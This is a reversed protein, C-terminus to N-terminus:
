EREAALASQYIRSVLAFFFGASLGGMLSGALGEVPGLMRWPKELVLDGYGITTFTVGSFYFASEANAALKRAKPNTRYLGDLAVRSKQDIKRADTSSALAHTGGPGTACSTALFPLVGIFVAALM